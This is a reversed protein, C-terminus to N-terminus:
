KSSMNKKLGRVVEHGDTERRFDREITLNVEFSSIKSKFKTKFLKSHDIQMNKQGDFDSAYNIVGFVIGKKDDYVFLLHRCM